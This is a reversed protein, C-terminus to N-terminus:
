DHEDGHKHRRRRKELIQRIADDAAVSTPTSLSRTRRVALQRRSDDSISFTATAM